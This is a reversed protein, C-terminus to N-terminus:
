GRLRAEWDLGGERVEAPFPLADRRLLERIVALTHDRGAGLAAVVHDDEVYFALFDKADLDGDVIVEDFRTTHGVYGLPTGAQVTWFFPVGEYRTSGAALMNRAATRGHQLAVRWHESRVRRGTRADPFSAVDGAAWVGETVALTGDAKLSGDERLPLDAVIETAPRVGVGVVVLDAALREGGALKVREVRGEGECREVWPGLRFRVGAEEHLRQLWAGVEAGLTAEFPVRDPAVVTVEAIGRQRLAGAVEMGIFSAGVIVAARAGTAAAAIRDADEWSRLTFVGPLDAGPVELLRPRAGMALLLADGTIEAGDALMVRRTMAEVRIVEATRREIGYTTYFAAPRLPMWEDPATGALYDKTCNPRDYPLRDERGVLVIRGHFGGRRLELAAALGAAGAGVLVFTRPDLRPDARVASEPAVPAGEDPVTVWVDDGDLEVDYRALADLAPPEVLAGTTVDFVSQHWPCTVHRGCLLGEGLPGHYHPCHAAVAHLRGEVRAVLVETDGVRATTMQGERLAAAGAVRVRAM